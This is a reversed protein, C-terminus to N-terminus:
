MNKYQWPVEGERVFYQEFEERINKADNGVYRFREREVAHMSRDPIDLRWEGPIYSGDSEYRDLMGAPAYSYRNQTMLFNHLVCCALGIKKTKNADVAIPSRLVRFRASMIGFVNEIVRRARSLRYNFIRQMGTLERNSYPKMINPKLAFADDAVLVYPVCKERGPLPKPQPLHLRNSELARAYSSKNFVGGDSIRGNCGVDVYILKYEADTIGLLVISHTHKYNFFISGSNPPAFMVLHKGDMSGTCNPFNWIENYKRAIEEWEEESSPM